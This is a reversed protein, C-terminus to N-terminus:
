ALYRVVLATNNGGFGFYDLLYAGAGVPQEKTLPALGLEPDIHQFGAAPPLVGAQLCGHLAILELTGCAGLTHGLCPKFSSFPPPDDGFVQRLALGEARDNSPTSTGHAKIAAIAAPECDASALARRIVEAIAGPESNTSSSTDCLNAGGSLLLDGARAEGAELLVAGVGEGLVLGNRDRDFPRAGDASALMLAEFGRASLKNYAEVGVVLARELEGAAIRQAAQLLANAASSCATCYTYRPGAFGFRTALHEALNGYGPKDLALATDADRACAEAYRAEADPIDLSSTGLFLALDAQDADTVGAEALADAVAADLLRWLREPQELPAAPHYLSHSDPLALPAPRAARLGEVQAAVGRGLASVVGRGAVRVSRQLSASDNM